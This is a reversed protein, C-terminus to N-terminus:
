VHARGIECMVYAHRNPKLVRFLESLLLGLQDNDITGYFKEPDCSASGERGLGMRATTGVGVWKNLTEYPPDTLVLDFSNGPFEPLVRFADGRIITDLTPAFPISM